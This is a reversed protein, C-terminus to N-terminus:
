RAVAKQTSWVLLGEGISKELLGLLCVHEKCSSHHFLSQNLIPVEHYPILSYICQKTRRLSFIREVYPLNIILIIM